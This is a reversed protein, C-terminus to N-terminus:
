EYRLAIMPDVRTARRAPIYSALLAAAILLLAVSFFSIPDTASIGYLLSSLVRTIAFAGVLGLGVGILTLRLGQWVVLQLVDSERAGLAMRVGVERTRQSVSYAIVSYLGLVALIMGLLGFTGLVIGAAQAPFLPLQMHHDFTEVGVLAMRSDLQQVQHRLGSIIQATDGQARVILQVGPEYDQLMCRYLFPKPEEALSQYKGTKTIGVVQARVLSRDPRFLNVFKGLADQHPWFRDAMVQNIVVTRPASDTDLETFGRGRLLAVGMAEFYGPSVIGVDVVPDSVEGPKTDSPRGEISVPEMRIFQGLPLHFTLAASRVGPLARVQQLLERYFLKGQTESYGFTEVNISAAVANRTDFGPDISRANLLSRLCLGAGVLLVMSATVQGVVLFSRLRSKTSGGQQSGERLNAVLDTKSGYLAPVLGFIIGTFLSALVTFILVRLDPSIDISVPLSVPKLALLLPAAWQTLALGLAGAIGAILISETLTQRILRSSDAGLSARIAMERRRSEGKALLLNAANACAILLVLGVVTMLGASVVGLVGRFPGPVFELPVVGAGLDKDPDPYAQSLQRALIDFDARAQALTTQPKLRGVGLLWHMHRENLDINPNTARHMALPTWLDATSGIIIGTFQAPAIGVVTFNRGNLSMPKGIINPDSGLRHQWLSHSLVVVPAADAGQDEEPLFGRGLQPTIGLVSFFSASVLACQVTEGEGGRNWVLPTTEATFGAMASFVQNHDRYYALDPYSLQLHSGIGTTQGAHRQWVEALHEPEQVAPPKLLFGNIFSFVTTNAAIGLALSLVAVCTFGPNKALMRLGYRFDQLLTQM